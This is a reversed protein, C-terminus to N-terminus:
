SDSSPWSSAIELLSRQGEEGLFAKLIEELLLAKEPQEMRVAEINPQVNWNLRAGRDFLAQMAHLHDAAGSTIHCLRYFLAELQGSDDLGLRVSDDLNRIAEREEGQLFLLQALNVRLAGVEPNLAM